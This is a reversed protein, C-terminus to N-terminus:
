PQVRGHLPCAPDAKTMCPCSCRPGDRELLAARADRLDLALDRALKREPPWLDGEPIAAATALREDSVRPVKGRATPRAPAPKRAADERAEALVERAQELQAHLPWLYAGCSVARDMQTEIAVVLASLATRAKDRRARAERLEDAIAVFRMTEQPTYALDRGARLIMLVSAVDGSSEIVAIADDIARAAARRHESTVQAGHKRRRMAENYRRNWAVAGRLEALRDRHTLRLDHFQSTVKTFADRYRDREATLGSVEADRSRAGETFAAERIQKILEVM